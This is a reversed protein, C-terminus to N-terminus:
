SAESAQYTEILSQVSCPKHLHYGQGYDIGIENLKAFIEPNEVFEGITKKGMLHAIENISKVMALDLKDDLM